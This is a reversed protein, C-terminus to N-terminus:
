KKNQFLTRRPQGPQAENHLRGTEAEQTTAMGPKYWQAKCNKIKKTTSCISCIAMM